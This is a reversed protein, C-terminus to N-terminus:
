KHGIVLARFTGKIIARMFKLVSLRKITFTGEIGLKLPRCCKRFRSMYKREHLSSFEINKWSKITKKADEHIRGSIELM